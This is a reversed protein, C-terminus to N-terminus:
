SPREAPGCSKAYSALSEALKSAAADREERPMKQQLANAMETETTGRAGSLTMTMALGVSYPSLVLNGSQQKALEGYLQRATANYAQALARSGDESSATRPLLAAALVVAPIMRGVIKVSRADSM